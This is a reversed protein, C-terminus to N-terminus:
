ARSARDYAYRQEQKRRIISVIFGMTLLIFGLWVLTILPKEYAQVVVWDAPATRVGTVQIDITGSDVNMAAFAMTLGWEELPEAVVQVRREQDILYVPTIRRTEGTSIETVSLIAGVAVEGEAPTAGDHSLQYDLFLVSYENSGIVTSDGRALTITGGDASDDVGLMTNPSVAVFIDKEVFTTVDPHQIWQDKNSKYVVPAVSFARGNPDVFDLPYQPRAPNSDDRGHYTVAYGDIGLTQGSEIVFNDRSDGIRVGAGQGISGSFSSSAIIGLVMIAFGVHSLAGGALKPNGKAIRVLVEANGFLAFFSVFLLLLLLLGQGYTSWFTGLGAALAGSPVGAAALATSVASQEVFPTLILVLLTAAVALVIPRTLVRNVNDLSMKSWWFLQGLGALFTFVVALPVTWKNYFAIPVSSPNDRFIRGIIPASTGLIVVLALACLLLAGAFIMFERSLMEPEHTPTPLEKYRYALLGFGVIGMSLIWVLLQNYLGLDVFSHVSIDGLIGSRTLFTSYIVFMYALINLFLSAKQSRGSRKQVIMTHIAAIGIIWPVLSSNEVPDWAWYGGFSLTEYAWYGGMTVGVGLIMTSFLAWPLAPRVWETYRRKWLAAISFAFPVIMAAFGTFLTPPHIVMWYNQLLDNLGQGDEPILGAALMPANPFKESLLQFPSAGLKFFGLDLGAVMSILFVQCLAIVAMAPAEYDRAWRIVSWGVLGNLVIWLMFSGEQGAWNASILYKLGLDRATHEYVYAYEFQHTLSLYFLFGYAILLGITMVSWASRGVRRWDSNGIELQAARFYALGSLGTAVFGVLILLKGIAGIM